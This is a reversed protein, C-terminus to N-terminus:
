FSPRIAGKTSRDGLGGAFDDFNDEDLGELIQREEDTLDYDKLAEDPNKFLLQRFAKDNIAREIIEKVTQDSM